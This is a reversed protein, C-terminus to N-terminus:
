RRSSHAQPNQRENIVEQVLDLLRQRTVGLALAWLDVECNQSSPSNKNDPM